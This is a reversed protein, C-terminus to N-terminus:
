IRKQTLWFYEWRATPTQSIVGILGTPGSSATITGTSSIITGTPDLADCHILYESATSSTWFRLRVPGSGPVPAVSMRMLVFNREHELVLYRNEDVVCLDQGFLGPPRALLGAGPTVLTEAVMQTGALSYVTPRDYGAPGTFVLGDNAVVFETGNTQWHMPQEATFPDFLIESDEDPSLDCRDGIKDSDAGLSQAPDVISPCTDCADAIGDHDEDHPAGRRCADCGDDIGDEDIDLGNPSPCVLTCGDDIGDGNSDMGVFGPGICEDCGDDVSDHDDDIGANTCNCIDGIGVGDVDVQLPNARDPCNDTSDPFGDGDRDSARGTVDDIGLLANCASLALVLGLSAFRTSM